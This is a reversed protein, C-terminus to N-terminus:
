SHMPIILCLGGWRGCLVQWVSCEGPQDDEETPDKLLLAYCIGCAGADEDDDDSGSSDDSMLEDGTKAEGAQGNWGGGEQGGRLQQQQQQDDDDDDDGKGGAGAGAASTLLPLPERLDAWAALQQKSPAPLDLELVAMLNAAAGRGEGWAGSASAFWRRQLEAAAAGGGSFTASPLAHPTAPSFVVELAGAGRPLALRRSCRSYWGGGSSSPGTVPAATPDTGDNSAAGIWDRLQQRIAARAPPPDLVRCTGDLQELAQWLAQYRGLAQQAHRLLAVLSTRGQVWPFRFPEPLDLWATPAAVPFM